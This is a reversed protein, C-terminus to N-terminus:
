YKFYFNILCAVSEPNKDKFLSSYRFKNKITKNILSYTTSYSNYFIVGAEHEKKLKILTNNLFKFEKTLLEFKELIYANSLNRFLLIKQGNLKNKLVDKVTSAPTGDLWYLSIIEKNNTSYDVEIRFNDQFNEKLITELEQKNM